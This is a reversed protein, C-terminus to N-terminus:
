ALRKGTIRVWEELHAPANMAFWPHYASLVEDIQSELIGSLVLRGRPKLLGAFFSAMEILPKALINAILVDASFETIHGPPHIEIEARTLQNRQANNKTSELAQPDHDIAIVKKAGLKSASIGLIGSGCGYDIVLEGKKLHASLWELCLTTTPHTGTGFALGPDLIVNTAKPDPPTTWSPCIWLRKGFQMPKFRDLCRRTWDEDELARLEFKKLLGAERQKELYTGISEIPDHEDFLAVLMVNNWLTTENPNLEYIPEDGADRLTISQAGLLILQDNLQYAHDRTTTIHFELWNMLEAM